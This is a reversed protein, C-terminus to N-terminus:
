APVPEHRSSFAKRTLHVLLLGPPMRLWHGRLYLFARALATWRDAALPHVPRLARLCAADMWRLCRRGPHAGSAQDLADQVAQPVPTCMFAKAYRLAYFLPRTLDLEVARPVLAPWFGPQAGFECLLADLDVLGRLGREFEGEHMLHAASHLVMDHPALVHLCSGPRLRRAGDLLLAADPHLRSTIPLIAHHVDLVTRRVVHTLPPLEHMWTRYYREDYASQTATVWGGQFLAGEVDALAARPVLIDVDSVMRGQAAQLGALVYAAGKLLVLPVGTQELASAIHGAEFALERQQRQALRLASELHRRPQLPLREWLGAAQALAALRALLDASRALRVLQDWQLDSYGELRGPDRLADLLLDMGSATM